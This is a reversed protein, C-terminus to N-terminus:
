AIKMEGMLWGKTLVYVYYIGVNVELYFDM